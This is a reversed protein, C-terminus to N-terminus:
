HNHRLISLTITMVIEKKKNRSVYTCLSTPVDEKIQPTESMSLHSCKKLSLFFYYINYFVKSSKFSFLTM